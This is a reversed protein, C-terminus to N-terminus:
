KMYKKAAEVAERINRNGVAFDTTMVSCDAGIAYGALGNQDILRRVEEQIKEGTGNVMLERNNLGGLIPRKFLKRGEEIGFDNAYTAWNLMAGPYNEFWDIHIKFDYEPEGCLHLINCKGDMQEAVDLVQLDFPKVLYEWQEKTFRGIEGFQASYYIADAGNELYGKAWEVQEKAIAEIGVRVAQPDEKCHKMLMEDGVVMDALKFPGFMTIWVPCEGQVMDVIYKLIELQKKYHPSNLGLPSINKWDSASVIKENLHYPADYMIKIVDQDSEKYLKYHLEAAERATHNDGYHYWMGVPARDPVMGNLVTQMREKKNM